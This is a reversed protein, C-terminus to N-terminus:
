RDLGREMVHHPKIRMVVRQESRNPYKDLGRYKKAMKDIHQNGGEDGVRREVITGRIVVGRHADQPDFISLAIRPDRVLNRTKIRGEASNILVHSGDPEVDVWVPTVHPSGDAMVTAVHAIVQQELLKVANPSLSDIKPM